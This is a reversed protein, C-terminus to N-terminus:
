KKAPMMGTERLFADARKLIVANFLEGPPDSGEALHHGQEQLTVLEFPNGLKTAKERFWDAVRWPETTDKRGHFGIAPPLGKKLRHYPSIDWIRTRQKGLMRDCWTQVTNYCASFTLLANPVPSVALDDGEEDIGDCLATAWVLQGGASRGWASIRDRDIGLADAERRIWRVASRADKVSEVPTIESHPYSGDENRSLRYEFTLTVFGKAAYRRCAGHYISRDGFVWGGGHFFAIAPRDAGGPTEEANVDPWFVDVHLDRDGVRKYVLTKQRGPNEESRGVGPLLCCVLTIAIFQTRASSTPFM